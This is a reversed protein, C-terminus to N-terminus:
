ITALVLIIIFIATLIFFKQARVLFCTVDNEPDKESIYVHLGQPSRRNFGGDGDELRM